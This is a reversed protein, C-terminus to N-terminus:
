DELKTITIVAGERIDDKPAYSKRKRLYTVQKIDPILIPQLARLTTVELRTLDPKTLHSKSKVTKPRQFFFDMDVVYSAKPSRFQPHKGSEKQAEAAVDLYWQGRGKDANPKGYIQLQLEDNM